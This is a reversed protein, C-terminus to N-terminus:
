NIRDMYLEYSNWRNSYYFIESRNKHKAEYAKDLEKIHNNMEEETKFHKDFIYNHHRVAPPISVPLKSSSINMLDDISQM